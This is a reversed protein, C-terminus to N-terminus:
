DVKRFVLSNGNPHTLHLRSDGLSYHVTSELADLFEAELGGPCMKRTTIIDKFRLLGPEFFVKGRMQNCSTTGMFEGTTSNLEMYPRELGESISIEIGNLSELAWIDHLRYDMQYAGCGKLSKFNPAGRDRYQIKVKYPAVEGAGSKCTQHTIEIRLETSETELRYQQVNANIDKDPDTHPTYITDEKTTLSIRTQSIELSWEPALGSARFYVNNQTMKTPLNTRAGVPIGSESFPAPKETTKSEKKSHCGFSVVLVLALSFFSDRLRMM